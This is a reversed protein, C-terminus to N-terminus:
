FRIFFGLSLDMTTAGLVTFRSTYMDSEYWAREYGILALDTFLAVRETVNYQARGTAYIWFTKLDKLGPMDFSTNSFGIEGGALLDLKDWSFLVYHVFPAFGFTTSTDEVVAIGVTGGVDLKDTIRYGVFPDLGFSYASASGGPVKQKVVAFEVAGGAFWKQAFSQTTVLATLVLVLVVSKKM